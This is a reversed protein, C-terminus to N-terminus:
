AKQKATTLTSTRHHRHGKHREEVKGLEAAVKETFEASDKVHGGSSDHADITCDGNEDFIIKITGSM